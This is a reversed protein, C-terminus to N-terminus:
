RLKLCNNWRWDGTLGVLYMDRCIRARVISIIVHMFLLMILFRIQFLTLVATLAATVSFYYVNESWDSELIIMLLPSFTCGMHRESINRKM